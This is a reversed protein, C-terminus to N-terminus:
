LGAKIRMLQRRHALDHGSYLSIMREVSEEGRENHYGARKLDSESLGKLLRLNIQRLLKLQALTNELCCQNYGLRQAWLDQDYGTIEPRDHAIIMRLRYAWVLESDALHQIVELISWKGPAEPRRLQEDNLGDIMDDVFAPLAELVKVPNENGLLALLANIYNEADEKAGNAPNTFVSM